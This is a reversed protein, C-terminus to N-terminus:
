QEHRVVRDPKLWHYVALTVVLVFGGQGLFFLWTGPLLRGGLVMLWATASLVCLLQLARQPRLWGYLVLAVLLLALWVLNATWGTFKEAWDLLSLAAWATVIMLLWCLMAANAIKWFRSHGHWEQWGALAWFLLNLAVLLGFQADVHWHGFTSLALLAALNFLVVVLVALARSRALLLWPLLLLGWVLFLEYPDAGTQYTQGILALWAGLLLAAAFLSTQSLWHRLPYRLMPLCSLVLLWQALVFKHLRGMADWNYAFFFIVASCACLMAAILLLRDLFWRTREADPAIGTVQLAQPLQEPQLRGETVWRRLTQTSM